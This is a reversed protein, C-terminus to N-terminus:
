AGALFAGAGRALRQVVLAGDEVAYDLREHDLATVEGLAVACASLAYVPLLKLILVKLLNMFLWEQQAHRISPWTRAPFQTTHSSDLQPCARVSRLEENRRHRRGMQILLMNHKALHDISLANYPLNLVQLRLATVLRPVISLDKTLYFIGSLRIDLISEM